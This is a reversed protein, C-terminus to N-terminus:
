VKAKSYWFNTTPKAALPLGESWKFGLQMVYILYRAAAEAQAEPVHLLIEDHTHLSTSDIENELRVLTGRLIDAATAQTANETLLGKWMKVRRRDRRFTLKDSYGIVEGDADYDKERTVRVDPYILKRGSPLRMFLTREGLYGRESRFALRGVGFAAKPTDVAAMAAAWINDWFPRAWPNASRWRDVVDHAQEDSFHKGYGAAMSQLAGIGGAFGCALEAIKGSQRLPDEDSIDRANGGFMDAAIEKYMDPLSPNADIARYKALKEDARKDDALFAVVRSEISSWDGWVFTYGAQAVLTPRVLLALRRVMPLGDTFDRRGAVLEDIMAAEDEIKKTVPDRTMNHLQPRKSSFRGTQPAGNFVYTMALRGNHAQDTIAKFKGTSSSGGYLRLELIEHAITEGADLTEKSDLYALLRLIHQRRLKLKVSDEEEDNEAEIVRSMIARAEADLREYLWTKMKPVATVAAVRGGTLDALRHGAKAKEEMALQEAFQAFGLDIPVGRRNIREAAHYEAWEEPRLPLLKRWIDRMRVVDTCAYACFSKWEEPHDIASAKEISFLKILAKGVADKGVHLLTKAAGDLDPPLNAAAALVRADLMNDLLDKPGGFPGAWVHGDFGANWACLKMGGSGIAAILDNQADAWHIPHSTCELVNIPGDEIAYSLVIPECNAAYRVTGVTKLNLDSRTEFDIFVIGTTDAM